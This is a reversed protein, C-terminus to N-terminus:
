TVFLSLYEDNFIKRNSGCGTISDPNEKAWAWKLPNYYIYERVSNLENENRIIRDYYGRQWKFDNNGANRIQKSVISKFQAM